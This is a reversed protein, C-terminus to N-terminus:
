KTCRTIFAPPLNRWEWPLREVHSFYEALLKFYRQRGPMLLGIHYGFTAM